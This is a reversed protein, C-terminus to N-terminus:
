QVIAIDAIAVDCISNTSDGSLKVWRCVKWGHDTYVWPIYQTWAKAGRIQVFNVQELNPASSVVLEAENTTVSDGASDTVKCYLKKGNDSLVFARTYSSSTASSIVTLITGSKVYWQYTYPPTGGGATVSFTKSQGVTGYFDSINTVTLPIQLAAFTITDSVTIDGPTYSTEISHWAGSITVSTTTPDTITLTTSGLLYTGKSSYNYTFYQKPLSSVTGQGLKYYASNSYNNYAEGTNDEVYLKLAISTASTSQTVTYDLRLRWPNVGATGSVYSSYISGM